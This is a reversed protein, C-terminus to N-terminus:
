LIPPSSQLSVYPQLKLLIYEEEPLPVTVGISRDTKTGSIMVQQYETYMSKEAKLSATKDFRIYQNIDIENSNWM